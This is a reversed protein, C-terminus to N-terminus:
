RSELAVAASNRREAAFSVVIFPVVFLQHHSGPERKTNAPIRNMTAAMSDLGATQIEMPTTNMMAPPM